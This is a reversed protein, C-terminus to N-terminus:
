GDTRCAFDYLDGTPAYQWLLDSTGDGNLDGTGLYNCSPGVNSVASASAIQGNHTAVLSRFCPVQTRRM